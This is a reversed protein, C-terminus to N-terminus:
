CVFQNIVKPGISSKARNEAIFYVAVIEVPLTQVQYEVPPAIKLEWQVRAANYM